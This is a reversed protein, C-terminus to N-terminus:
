LLIWKLLACSITSNHDCSGNSICNSHDRSCSGTWYRDYGCIVLMLVCLNEMAVQFLSRQALCPLQQFNRNIQFSANFQLRM